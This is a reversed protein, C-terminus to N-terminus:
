KCYKNIIAMLCRNVQKSSKNVLTWDMFGVIGFLLELPLWALPPINEANEASYHQWAKVVISMKVVFYKQKSAVRHQNRLLQEYLETSNSCDLETLAKSHILSSVESYPRIKLSTLTTNNINLATFHNYSLDLSQLTENGFLANAGVDSINNDSAILNYLFTQHALAHASVDTLNNSGVGLTTLNTLNLLAVVGADAIFNNGIDLVTLTTNNYGFTKAVETGVWNNSINLETITTNFAFPEIGAHGDSTLCIMSLM